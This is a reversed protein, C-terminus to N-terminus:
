DEDQNMRDGDEERGANEEMEVDGDGTKGTHMPVEDNAPQHKSPVPALRKELDMSTLAAQRKSAALIEETKANHKKPLYYISPQTTTKLYNAMLKNHSRLTEAAFTAIRIEDELRQSERRERKEKIERQVKESLEQKEQQLKEALKRDIEERKKEADTKQTTTEKFKNLTGLLSGFLRRSRNKGEENMALRPRKADSAGNVIEGAEPATPSRADDLGAAEPDRKIPLSSSSLDITPEETETM